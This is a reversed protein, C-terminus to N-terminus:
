FKYNQKFANFAEIIARKTSDRPIVLPLRMYPECHGELSMAYKICQPNTELFMTRCLSSLSFSLDRAKSFNGMLCEDIFLSWQKPILNGIVSISGKAGAAILPLALTDDGVYLFKSTLQMLEVCHDVDGTAEKIGIMQDILLLEALQKPSFRIGTRGPHHYLIAPLGCAGIKEFHSLCGEFTPKNYYPFIVLAADVGLEKAKATREVAIRTDNSGTGAIIPIRGNAEKVAISILEAQESSSLTSSEGTSGCIVLGKTGQEIQWSIMRRFSTFDISGDILFPTILAVISGNLM